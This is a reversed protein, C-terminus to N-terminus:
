FIFFFLYGFGSDYLPKHEVAKMRQQGEFKSHPKQTKLLGRNFKIEIMTSM